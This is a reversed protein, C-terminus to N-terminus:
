WLPGDWFNSPMGVPNFDKVRMSMEDQQYGIWGEADWRSRQPPEQLRRLFELRAWWYTGAFFWSHDAHEPAQPMRLWYVGCVDAEDAALVTVCDEWRTVNYYCMTRRWPRNVPVHPNAAGKTHAYLVLGDASQAFRHLPVQTVQEWGVDAEGVVDFDVGRGRLFTRVQKRQADDGVLGVRLVGLRDLLGSGRLALVHEEVPEEWQGAAYVHYFHHVNVDAFEVGGAM